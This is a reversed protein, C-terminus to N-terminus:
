AAEKARQGSERKKRAEDILWRLFDLARAPEESAVLEVKPGRIPLAAPM